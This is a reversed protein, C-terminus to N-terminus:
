ALPGRSEGGIEALTSGCAFTRVGVFAGSLRSSLEAVNELAKLIVIWPEVVFELGSPVHRKTLASMSSSGTGPVAPQNVLRGPEIASIWGCRSAIPM